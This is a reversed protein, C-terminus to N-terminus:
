ISTRPGFSPARRRTVLPSASIGSPPLSFGAGARDCSCARAWKAIKAQVVACAPAWDEWGSDFVVTASGSGMCYLNLRAGDAAQVIRGPRAYVDDGPASGAAAQIGLFLSSLIACSLLKMLSTGWKRIRAFSGFISTIGTPHRRM